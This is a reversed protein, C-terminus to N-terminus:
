NRIDLLNLVFAVFREHWSRAKPVAEAVSATQRAEPVVVVVEEGQKKYNLRAKAEREITSQEKLLAIENELRERETLLAKREAEKREREARLLNSRMYLQAITRM